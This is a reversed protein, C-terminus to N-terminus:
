IKEWADKDLDPFSIQCTGPVIGKVQAFGKGDLTGEAVSKDPLIIKYRIGAVFENEEDVMEIKIWSTKKAKEEETEPPKYPIIPVSGYKGSETKKQQAKIEAVEGPDATDAEQAEDPAVPAVAQAGVPGVPPGSGTNINVLPGGMIFIAAPTLVISSGGCKLEIGTSAEIKASLAKLAYTLSVEHKHNIKFTEVVDGGVTLSYSGDVAKAEMGKVKLHRDKGIEEKHDMKIKEHRNKDLKELKDDKVFLHRKHGISEFRGSKVRIDLNKQAHIFVQEDDKKDEFRIENFGGGDPSSLSKITSITKNTPLGYPPTTDANYVKGTVIPRDPDGELFEVIVEQGVRPLFFAGWKKGAWQQAVRIWCSSNEDAEGLRDWHFQVKIRGHEDTHIEEGAPGVVMATQPGQVTPKPTRRPSRYSETADIAAFSCNFEEGGGEGSSYDPNSASISMNTVLYKRNQDGRPHDIMSFTFGASIGRATTVGRLTEYDAQIEEIRIRAYNEGEGTDTYEGPYDFIEYDLAADFRDIKRSATLDSRPTTFNYDTHTYVRSQVEKEISWEFIYEQMRTQQTPPYYPIEDYKEYSKHTASDNALVMTHKGNEHMWYYYIGEQEMLRSVFNLDTERYQVCYEWQRPEGQLNDQIDGSEGFVEKIIDPTTKNQFIRCDSTQNLFWLWPTVTARFQAQDSDQAVQSFRSVFGNFYRTGKPTELRVTVNHGVIDDFSIEMETSILDLEMEFLESLTETYSFHTLVFVDEGSPTGVAIYRHQQQMTRAM